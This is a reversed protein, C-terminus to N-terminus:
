RVHSRLAAKIDGGIALWDAEIGDKPAKPGRMEGAFFLAASSLGFLVGSIFSMKRTKASGKITGVSGKRSTQYRINPM